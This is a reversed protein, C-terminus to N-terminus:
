ASELWSKLRLAEEEYARELGEIITAELKGGYFPVKVDVTGTVQRTTSNHGNGTLRISGFASLLSAAVEPNITWNWCLDSPSWTAEEIWAPTEDGIVRKLARGVGIDLVCRIRRTIIGDPAAEQSLVVREKLPGVGQLSAQYDLDLLTTAVRDPEASFEHDFAFEV